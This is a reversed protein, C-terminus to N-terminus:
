VMKDVHSFLRLINLYCYDIKFVRCILTLLWIIEMVFMAKTVNRFYSALNFMQVSKM